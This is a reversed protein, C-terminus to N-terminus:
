GLVDGLGERVRQPAPAALAAPRPHHGRGGARQPDGLVGGAIEVRRPPGAVLLQGDEIGDLPAALQQRVQWRGPLDTPDGHRLGMECTRNASVYADAPWADLGAKEDRTASLVLEPHLLGRDGATGCCTTGIPTHVETALNFAPM